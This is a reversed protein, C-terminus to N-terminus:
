QEDVPEFLKTTLVVLVSLFIILTILRPYGPNGSSEDILGYTFRSDDSRGIKKYYSKM